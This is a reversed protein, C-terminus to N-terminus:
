NWRVTGILDEDDGPMTLSGGGNLTRYAGTGNLIQWRGLFTVMNCNMRITITGNPFTLEFICHLANGLLEAPMVYTGSANFAGSVVVTGFYTSGIAHTYTGYIRISEGSNFTLAKSTFASPITKFGNLMFFAMIYVTIISFRIITKKM